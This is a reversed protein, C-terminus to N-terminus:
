YISFAGIQQNITASTKKKGTIPDLQYIISQTENVLSVFVQNYVSNEYLLKYQKNEVVLSFGPNLLDIKILYDQTLLFAWDNNTVVLSHVLQSTLDAKPPNIEENKIVQRTAVDIISISPKTLTESADGEIKGSGANIVVFKTGDNTPTVMYPVNAVNIDAVTSHFRSDIVSVKNLKPVTVYIQNGIASISSANEDLDIFKVFKFYYIDLLAVKPADKFILYGETANAFTIDTPKLQNETFDIIAVQQFTNKDLVVVKYDDPICIFIYKLFTRLNKIENKSIYSQNAQQYLDDSVKAGSPFKFRAIHANGDYTTALFDKDASGENILKENSCSILFILTFIISALIKIFSKM